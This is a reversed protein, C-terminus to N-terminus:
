VVDGKPATSGEPLDGGGSEGTGMAAAAVRGLDAVGGLRPLLGRRGTEDRAFVGGSRVDLEGGDEGLWAGGLGGPRASTKGVWWMWPVESGEPAPPVGGRKPGPTKRSEANEEVVVALQSTGILHVPLSM